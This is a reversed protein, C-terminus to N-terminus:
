RVKQLFWRTLLRDAVVLALVAGIGFAWVGYSGLGDLATLHETMWQVALSVGGSVTSWGRAIIGFPASDRGTEAPSGLLLYASALVSMIVLTGLFSAGHELLRFALPTRAGRSLRIMLTQTFERGTEPLPIARLSRDIRFLQVYRRRCRDCVALHADTRVTVEAEQKTDVLANLEDLSYHHGNANM